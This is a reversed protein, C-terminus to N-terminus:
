NNIAEIQAFDRITLSVMKNKNRAHKPSYIITKNEMRIM